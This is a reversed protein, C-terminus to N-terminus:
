QIRTTAPPMTLLMQSLVESITSIQTHNMQLDGYCNAAEIMEHILVTFGVNPKLPNHWLYIANEDTNFYGRALNGNVNLPKDLVHIDVTNSFIKIEEPYTQMYM